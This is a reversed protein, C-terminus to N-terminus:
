EYKWKRKHTFKQRGSCCATIGSPSCSYARAADAASVFIEGTDICRVPRVKGLKTAKQGTAYPKSPIGIRSWAHGYITSSESSAVARIGAASAKPYGRKAMIRAAHRSSPFKEGDDNWVPIGLGLGTADRTAQSPSFGVRGGGGLTQNILRGIGISRIVVCELTLACCATMSDKLIFINLGHKAVINKWHRTRNHHTWARKGRGKGVYFVGGDSARKHFYVYDGFPVM